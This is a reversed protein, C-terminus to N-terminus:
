HIALAALWAFTQAVMLVGLSGSLWSMRQVKPEPASACEQWLLSKILCLPAAQRM